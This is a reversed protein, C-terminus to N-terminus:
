PAPIDEAAPAPPLAALLASTVFTWIASPDLTASPLTGRWKVVADSLPSAYIRVTYDTGPLEPFLPLQISEEIEAIGLSKPQRLRHDAVERIIIRLM